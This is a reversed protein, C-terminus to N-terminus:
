DPEEQQDTNNLAVSLYNSKEPAPPPIFFSEKCVGDKVPKNRKRRGSMFRNWSFIYTGQRVITLDSFVPRAAELELSFFPM